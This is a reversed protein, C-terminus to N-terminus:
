CLRVRGVYERYVSAQDSGISVTICEPVPAADPVPVVPRTALSCMGLLGALSSRQSSCGEAASCSHLRLAAQVSNLPLQTQHDPPLLCPCPQEQIGLLWGLACALTDRVTAALM